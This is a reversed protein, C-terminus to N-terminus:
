GSPNPVTSSGKLSNYVVNQAVSPEVVNGVSKKWELYCDVSKKFDRTRWQLSQSNILALTLLL